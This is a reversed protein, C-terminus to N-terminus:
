LLFSMKLRRAQDRSLYIERRERKLKKHIRSKAGLTALGAEFVKSEKGGFPVSTSRLLMPLCSSKTVLLLPCSKSGIMGRRKWLKDTFTVSLRLLPMRERDLKRESKRAKLLLFLVMKFGTLIKFYDARYAIKHLSKEHDKGAFYREFLYEESM